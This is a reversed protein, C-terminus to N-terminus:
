FIYYCTTTCLIRLRSAPTPTGASAGATVLAWLTRQAKDAGVCLTQVHPRHRQVGPRKSPVTEGERARERENEREQERERKRARAREAIASEKPMQFTLM